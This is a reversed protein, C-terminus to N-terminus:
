GFEVIEDNEPQKAVPINMSDVFLEYMKENSFREKLELAYECSDDKGAVIDNYCQRMKTKASAERPFAWM